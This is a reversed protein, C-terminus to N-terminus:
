VIAAASRRADLRGCLRQAEFHAAQATFLAAWVNRHRNSRDFVVSGDSACAAELHQLAHSRFDSILKCDLAGSAELIAAARLTQAAVDPAGARGLTEAPVSRFKEALAVFTQVALSLTEARQDRSWLILLGEIGYLIPHANAELEDMAIANVHEVIRPMWFRFTAASLRHADASPHGAVAAAAKLHHPGCRTSWRDPVPGGALARMAGPALRDGITLQALFDMYRDALASASEGVLERSSLLGRLVIGLDFSFLYDNRWDQRDSEAYIRTAPPGKCSIQDLWSVVARVKPVHDAESRWAVYSLYYGAIEPYAADWSGDADFWTPVAGTHGSTEALPLNVDLWASIRCSIERLHHEM